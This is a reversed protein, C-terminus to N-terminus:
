KIAFLVVKVIIRRDEHIFLFFLAEAVIHIM